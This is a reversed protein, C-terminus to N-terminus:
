LNTISIKLTNYLLKGFDSSSFFDAFHKFGVWDSGLIGKIPSFDKFAIIAGYMPGYHFIALYAFPLLIMLHLQWNKIFTMWFKQLGTQEVTKRAAPAIGSRKAFISGKAM